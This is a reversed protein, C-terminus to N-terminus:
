GFNTAYFEHFDHDLCQTNYGFQALNLLFRGVFVTRWLDFPPVKEQVSTFHNSLEIELWIFNYMMFVLKM